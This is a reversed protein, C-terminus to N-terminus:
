KVINILCTKSFVKGKKNYKVKCLYIGDGFNTMNINIKHIGQVFYNNAVNLFHEGFINFIDITVFGSEPINFDITTSQSFPNPYNTISFIDETLNNINEPSCESVIGSIYYNATPRDVLANGNSDAYQCSGGYQTSNDFTLNTTGGFYRFSIDFLHAIGNINTDVQVGGNGAGWGIRAVKIGPYGPQNSQAYWVQTIPLLASNVNSIFMGTSGVQLASLVSADYNISLSIAGILPSHFLNVPIKIITNPCSIASGISTIGATQCFSNVFCFLGSILSLIKNFKM